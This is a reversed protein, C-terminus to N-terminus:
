RKQFAIKGFFQVELQHQLCHFKESRLFHGYEFNNHDANKGCKKRKERLIRSFHLGSYNRIRVSKVCHKPITTTNLLKNLLFKHCSCSMTRRITEPFYVSYKPKQHVFQVSQFIDIPYVNLINLCLFLPESSSAKSQNFIIRLAHKQKSKINKLNTKHTSAM